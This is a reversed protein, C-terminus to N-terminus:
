RTVLSRPENRACYIRLIVSHTGNLETLFSDFRNRCVIFWMSYGNSLSCHRTSLRRLQYFHIKRTCQEKQETKECNRVNEMNKKHEVKLILEYSNSLLSFVAFWMVLDSRHPLFCCKIARILYVHEFAYRAIPKPNLIIVKNFQTCHLNACYLRGPLQAFCFENLSFCRVRFNETRIRFELLFFISLLLLVRVMAM